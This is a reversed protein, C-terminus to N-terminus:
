TWAGSRWQEIVDEGSEFRRLQNLIDLDAFGADVTSELVSFVDSYYGAPDIVGVPLGHLGLQRWTLAEFLEEFTGLGGPLAVIADALEIMRAKRTHMSDVVEVSQLGTHAVEHESLFAPIVGVVDGGAELVADSVAGMLGTGGGGYVLTIGERGCLERVREVAHQHVQVAVAVVAHVPM